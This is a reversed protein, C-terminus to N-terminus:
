LVILTITAIIIIVMMMTTIIIYTPSQLHKLHSSPKNNFMIEQQHVNRQQILAKTSGGPTMRTSM